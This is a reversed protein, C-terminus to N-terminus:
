RIPLHPGLLVLIVILVPIWLPCKQFAALVTLVLAVFLILAM